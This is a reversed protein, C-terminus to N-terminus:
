ASTNSSTVSFVSDGSKPDQCDSEIARYQSFKFHVLMYAVANVKVGIKIVAGIFQHGFSDNLRNYLRKTECLRSAM